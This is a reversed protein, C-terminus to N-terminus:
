AGDDDGLRESLLERLAEALREDVTSSSFASLLAVLEDGLSLAV